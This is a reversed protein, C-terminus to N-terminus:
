KWFCKCPEWSKGMWGRLSKVAKELMGLRAQCHVDSLFTWLNMPVRESGSTTTGTHPKALPHTVVRLEQQSTVTKIWAQQTLFQIHKEKKPFNAQGTSVWVGGRALHIGGIPERLLYEQTEPPRGPPFYLINGSRSSLVSLCYSKPRLTCIWVMCIILLHWRKRSGRM